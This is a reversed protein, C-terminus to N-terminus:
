LNLTAGVGHNGRSGTYIEYSEATPNWLLYVNLADRARSLIGAAPLVNRENWSTIIILQQAKEKKFLYFQFDMWIKGSSSGFHRHSRGCKKWYMSYQQSLDSNYEEKHRWITM